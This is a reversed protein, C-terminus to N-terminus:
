RYDGRWVNPPRFVTGLYGLLGLRNLGLGGSDHRSDSTIESTYWAM